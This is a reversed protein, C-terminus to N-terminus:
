LIECIVQLQDLITQLANEKSDIPIQEEDNSNTEVVKKKQRDPKAKRVKGM